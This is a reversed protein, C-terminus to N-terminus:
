KNKRGRLKRDIMFAALASVGASVIDPLPMDATMYPIYHPVKVFVGDAGKVYKVYLAYIDHSTVKYPGSTDTAPKYQTDATFSDLLGLVHSLEHAIVASRKNPQLTSSVIVLWSKSGNTPPYTIGIVREWTEGLTVKADCDTEALELRLGLLGFWIFRVSFYNLAKNWEGVAQKVDDYLEPSTCIRLIKPARGIKDTPIITTPAMIYGVLTSIPLFLIFTALLIIGIGV